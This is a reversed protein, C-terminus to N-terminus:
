RLANLARQYEEPSSIDILFEEGGGQNLFRSAAERIQWSPIPPFIGPFTQKLNQFFVSFQTNRKLLEHSDFVYKAATEPVFGNKIREEVEKAYGLLLLEVTSQPKQQTGMTHAHKNFPVM